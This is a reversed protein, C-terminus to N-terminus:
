KKLAKKNYKAKGFALILWFIPTLFILGVAFWNNKGFVKATRVAYLIGAWIAVISTTLGTILVLPNEMAANRAEIQEPTFAYMEYGNLSLIISGIISVGLLAWFWNKMDVIKFMIYTNYIPILAKWGKEGAKEFIKWDAIVTIIYFILTVVILTGLIAGIVGGAVAAETTTLQLEEM